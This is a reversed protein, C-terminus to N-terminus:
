FFCTHASVKTVNFLCLVYHSIAVVKYDRCSFFSGSKTCSELAFVDDTLNM